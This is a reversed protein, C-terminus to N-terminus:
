SSIKLTMGPKLATNTLNNFSKLDQVSLGQFQRSISWLSDGPQVIYTKQHSSNQQGKTKNKTQTPSQTYNAKRPYITLRQGIRLNNNRMSNWRKIESVRVGYLEAIRGLYDGSKVRYRVKDSVKYYQPLAEQSQAIEQKAYDYIKDENAVFVGVAQHPLRISYKKEPEFPIIDLKYSPNLFKLFEVDTNTVKAVEEM